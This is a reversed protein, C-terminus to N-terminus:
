FWGKPQDVVEVDRKKRIEELIRKVDEVDGVAANGNGCDVAIPYKLAKPNKEALQVIEKVT